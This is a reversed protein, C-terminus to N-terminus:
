VDRECSARCVRGSSRAAGNSARKARRNAFHAGSAAGSALADGVGLKEKSQDRQLEARKLWQQQQAESAGGGGAHEAAREARKAMKLQMELMMNADGKAPFM